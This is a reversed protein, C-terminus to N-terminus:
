MAFHMCLFLYIFLLARCFFFLNQMDPLMQPRQCVALSIVHPPVSTESLACVCPGKRMCIGNISNRRYAASPSEGCFSHGLTAGYFHILLDLGPLVNSNMRFLLPTLLLQELLHGDSLKPWLQTHLVTRQCTQVLLKETCNAYLCPELVTPKLCDYVIM